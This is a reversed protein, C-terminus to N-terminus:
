KKILKYTTFTAVPPNKGSGFNIMNELLSLDQATHSKVYYIADHIPMRDGCLDINNNHNCGERTLLSYLQSVLLQRIVVLPLLAVREPDIFEAEGFDYICAKGNLIGVNGQHLDNHIIGLQVMRWTKSVLQQQHLETITNRNGDGVWIPQIIEMVIGQLANPAGRRKFIKRLIKNALKQKMYTILYEPNQIHEWIDDTYGFVGPAIGNKSAYIQISTENLIDGQSAGNTIIKLALPGTHGIMNVIVVVANDGAAVYDVVQCNLRGMALQDANYEEMKTITKRSM